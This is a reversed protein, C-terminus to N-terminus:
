GVRLRLVARCGPHNPHNALSLSGGHVEAIQRSLALGIGSGQPKTTFFPIFPDNATNLGPGDDDVWIEIQKGALMWGIEVRGEPEPHTEISAEVANAIINILLQELQGRDGQVTVKPGPQVAVTMRKELGVVHRVCAAVDVDGLNPEPLHTLRAYSAVFQDLQGSRETIIALGDQM